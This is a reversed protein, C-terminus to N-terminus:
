LSARLNEARLQASRSGRHPHSKECLSQSSQPNVLLVHRQRDALLHAGLLASVPEHDSRTSDPLRNNKASKQKSKRKSKVAREVDGCEVRGANVIAIVDRLHWM